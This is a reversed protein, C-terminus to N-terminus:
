AASAAAARRASVARVVRWVLRGARDLLAVFLGRLCLISLWGLWDPQGILAHGFPFALARSHDIAFCVLMIGLALTMLRYGIRDGRSPRVPALTIYRGDLLHWAVLLAFAGFYWLAPDLFITWEVDWLTRITFISIWPDGERGIDRVPLFFLIASGAVVIAMSTFWRGL